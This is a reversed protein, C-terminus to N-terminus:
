FVAPGPVPSIETTELDHDIESNYTLAVRLAIEPKEYAVGVLYGFALDRDGDASYPGPVSTVVAEAELTQARLGGFVSTGNDLNYQLVGTLANSNLEANSGEFM